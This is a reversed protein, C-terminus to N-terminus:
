KRYQEIKENNYVTMISPLYDPINWIYNEKLKNIKLHEPELRGGKMEFIKQIRVLYDKCLNNILKSPISNWVELFFKKLENLSSPNRRKVKPKIIAWLDEILYALDPSNPPNQIWGKDSFLKNL